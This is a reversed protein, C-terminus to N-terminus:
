HEPTANPCHGLSGIVLNPLSWRQRTHGAHYPLTGRDANRGCTLDFIGVARRLPGSDDFTRLTARGSHTSMSRCPTQRAAPRKIWSRNRIEAARQLSGEAPGSTALDLCGNGSSVARKNAAMGAALASANTQVM